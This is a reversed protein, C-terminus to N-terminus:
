TIYNFPILIRLNTHQQEAKLRATRLQVTVMGQAIYISGYWVTGTDCRISGGGGLHTGGSLRITDGRVNHKKKINKANKATNM